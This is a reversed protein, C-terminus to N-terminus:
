NSSENYELFNFNINIRNQSDTCNTSNHPFSGDFVLLRNEISKVKNDGIVTYGDNSNIYLIIALNVFPYDTHKKHHVLSDNRPYLNAKARLLTKTKFKQQIIEYVPEILSFFISPKENYLYLVHSFYGNQEIENGTISSCFFWPFCENSINKKLNFFLSKELFNDYVIM